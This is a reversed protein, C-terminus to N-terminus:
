DFVFSELSDTPFLAYDYPNEVQAVVQQNGPISVPHVPKVIGGTSSSDLSDVSSGSNGVYVPAHSPKFPQTAVPHRKRPRGRQKKVPTSSVPSVMPAPVILSLKITLPPISGSIEESSHQAKKEETRGDEDLEYAKTVGKFFSGHMYDDTTPAETPTVIGTSSNTPMPNASLFKGEVATSDDDCESVKRKRGVSIEENDVTNIFTATAVASAPRISNGKGPPMSLMPLLPPALDSFARERNFSEFLTTDQFVDDSGGLPVDNCLDNMLNYYESFCYLEDEKQQELATDTNSISKISRKSLTMATKKVRPASSKRKKTPSAAISVTSGVEQDTTASGSDSGNGSDASKDKTDMKKQFYKQAHTRTQVVTRTGVLDAILKWDKGHEECGKLFIQHEEITWRGVSSKEEKEPEVKSSAKSDVDDSGSYSIDSGSVINTELDM